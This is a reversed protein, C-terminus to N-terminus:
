VCSDSMTAYSVIHQRLVEKSQQGVWTEVKYGDKFLMITPVSSVGYEAALEKEQHIDVKAVAAQYRVEQALEEDISLQLQCSSNGPEYFDVLTIGYDIQGRFTDIFLSHIEM